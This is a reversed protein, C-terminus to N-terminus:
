SWLLNHAVIFQNRPRVGRFPSNSGGNSYMGEIPAGNDCFFVIVTNDLMQKERLANVVKGVSDDLVSVKM